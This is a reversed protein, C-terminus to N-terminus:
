RYLLFFETKIHFQLAVRRTHIDRIDRFGLHFVLREDFEQAGVTEVVVVLHVAIAIEVIYLSIGHAVTTHEEGLCFREAAIQFLRKQGIAYRFVHGLFVTEMFQIVGGLGYGLLYGFFVFIGQHSM